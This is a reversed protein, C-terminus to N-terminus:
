KAFSNCRDLGAQDLAEGNTTFSTVKGVQKVLTACNINARRDSKPATCTTGECRWIVDKGSAKAHPSPAELQAVQASSQALAPAAALSAFAMVPALFLSASTRFM